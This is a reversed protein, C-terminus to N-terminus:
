RRARALRIAWGWVRAKDRGSLGTRWSLWLDRISRYYVQTKRSRAPPNTAMVELFRRMAQEDCGKYLYYDLAKKAESLDVDSGQIRRALQDAESMLREWDM